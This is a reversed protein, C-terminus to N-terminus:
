EKFAEPYELRMKIIFVAQETHPTYRLETKIMNKIIALRIINYDRLWNRFHWWKHKLTGFKLTKWAKYKVKRTQTIARTYCRLCLHLNFKDTYVKGIVNKDEVKNGCRACYIKVDPKTLLEILKSM